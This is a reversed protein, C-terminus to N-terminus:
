KMLLARKLFAHLSGPAPDQLERMLLRLQRTKVMVMKCQMMWRQWGAVAADAARPRELTSSPEGSVSLLFYAHIWIM